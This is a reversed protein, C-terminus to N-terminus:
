AAMSWRDREYLRAIEEAGSRTSDCGLWDGCFRAVWQQTARGCWELRVSYRSDLTNRARSM